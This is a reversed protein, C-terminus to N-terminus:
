GTHWGRHPGAQIDQAHRVVISLQYGNSKCEDREGVLLGRLFSAAAAPDRSVSLRQIWHFSKQKKMRKTRQLEDKSIKAQMKLGFRGNHCLSIATASAALSCRREGNARCTPDQGPFGSPSIKMRFVDSLAPPPHSCICCCAYM